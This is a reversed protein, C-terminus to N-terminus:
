GTKEGSSRVIEFVEQVEQCKLLYATLGYFTAGGVVGGLVTILLMWPTAQKMIGWYVFGYLVLGMALAAFSAKGISALIGRAGIRGLRKKLAVVLLVLNMTMALSTALALGGHQMPGMLVLSFVINALLSVVAIKVPTKTDQIAYFTSVV